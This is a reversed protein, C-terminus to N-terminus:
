IRRPALEAYIAEYRDVVREIHFRTRAAEYGAMGLRAREAENEALRLMADALRDPSRVDVLLGYQRDGLTWPVGGSKRGGIVPIGLSMAEIVSM